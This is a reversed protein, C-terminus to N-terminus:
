QKTKKMKVLKGCKPCEFHTMGIFWGTHNEHKCVIQKFKNILEKM